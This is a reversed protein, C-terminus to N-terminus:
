FAAGCLQAKDALRQAFPPSVSVDEVVDGGDAVDDLGVRSDTEGQGQLVALELGDAEVGGAGSQSDVVHAAM